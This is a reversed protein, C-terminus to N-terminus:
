GDRPDGSSPDAAPGTARLGRLIHDAHIDLFAARDPGDPEDIMSPFSPLHAMLMALGHCSAWASKAATVPDIDRRFAGTEQGECVLDVLHLFAQGKNAASFESWTRARPHPAEPIGSFAAAYHHPKELATRVYTVLCARARELFPRDGGMVEDVQDLIKEFFAEKLEELLEEKSGFYKYIAAPSYDIEDALRRISLGDEGDRSFVREAADLIASRVRLRRREAPSIEAPDPRKVM